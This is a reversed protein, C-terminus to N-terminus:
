TYVYIYLYIFICTYFCCYTYKCVGESVDCMEAGRSIFYAYPAPEEEPKSEIEMASVEKGDNDSVSLDNVQKEMEAVQGTEKIEVHEDLWPVFKGCDCYSSYIDEFTQIM